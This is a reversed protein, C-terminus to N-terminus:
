RSGAFVPGPEPAPLYGARTRVRWSVCTYEGPAMPQVIEVQRGVVETSETALEQVQGRLPQGPLRLRRYELMQAAVLEFGQEVLRRRFVADPIFRQKRLQAVLHQAMRPAVAM